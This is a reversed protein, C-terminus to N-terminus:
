PFYFIDIAKLPHTMHRAIIPSICKILDYTFLRIM